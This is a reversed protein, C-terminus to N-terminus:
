LTREPHSMANNRMADNARGRAACVLSEDRAALVRSLVMDDMAGTATV